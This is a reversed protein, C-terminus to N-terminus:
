DPLQCIRDFPDSGTGVNCSGWMLDTPGTICAWNEAGMCALPPACEVARPTTALVGTGGASMTFAAMLFWPVRRMACSRPISTTPDRSSRAVRHRVACGECWGVARVGTSRGPTRRMAVHPM